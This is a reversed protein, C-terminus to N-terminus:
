KGFRHALASEFVVLVLVLWLCAKWLERDQATVKGTSVLDSTNTVYRFKFDPFAQQLMDASLRELASEEPSVNVCVYEPFKEADRKLEYVGAFETNEFVLVFGQGLPTGRLTVPTGDPRADRDLASRERTLTFSAGYEHPQLLRRFPEGVMLNRRADPTHVYYITEHMLPLFVPKQPLNTWEASCTTTFLLCKGTGFRKELIAPAGTNYRCIVVTNADDPSVEVLFYRSVLASTLPTRRLGGFMTLIPHDFAHPELFFAEPAGEEQAVVRQLSAPLVGKGQRYLTENYFKPDVESGLFVVLAGGENVYTELAEAIEPTVRAVNALVVAQFESFTSPRLSHPGLTDPVIPSSVGGAAPPALAVRLFSTEGQGPGSGPRGDVCLVPISRRAAVSLYRVDDLPLRDSELGVRLVHPDEDHFVHSFRVSARDRAPVPVAATGQKRSDVYFNTVAKSADASSLNQITAEFTAIEGVLITRQPGSVSTVAFNAPDSVGVDVLFVKAAASLEKLRRQFDTDKGSRWLKWGNRQFDTFLYVEMEGGTGSGALRAAESLMAPVDTGSHSVSAAELERKVSKLNYSPEKVIGTPRDSFVYLSARDGDAMSDLVQEALARAREFIAQDGAQQSISFSNDLLLFVHRNSRSAALAAWRSEGERLRPHALALPLLILILTRVLLLILQELRIRRNNKKLSALLFRMAAWRVLRFRRRNLLHIIIPATGLVTGFLFLPNAFSLGFM